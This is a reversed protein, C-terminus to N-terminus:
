CVFGNVDNLDYSIYHCNDAIFKVTVQFDDLM